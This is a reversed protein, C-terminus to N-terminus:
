NRYWASSRVLWRDNRFKQLIGHFKTPIGIELGIFVSWTIMHDSFLAFNEPIIPRRRAWQVKELYCAVISMTQWRKGENRSPWHDLKLWCTTLHDTTVTWGEGFEAFIDFNQPFPCIGRSPEFNRLRRFVTPLLLLAVFVSVYVPMDVAAQLGWGKWATRFCKVDAYAHQLAFLCCWQM